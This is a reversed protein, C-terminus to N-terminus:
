FGLSGARFVRYDVTLEEGMKIHRAAKIVFLESDDCNPEESHNMFRADDGPLVWLGRQEDFWAYSDIKKMAPWFAEGLRDLEDQTFTLDFIQHERWIVTGAEIPHLTFLGLGAGHIKSLGVFTEILLM